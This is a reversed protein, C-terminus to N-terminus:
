CRAYLQISQVSVHYRQIQPMRNDICICLITYQKSLCSRNTNTFGYPCLCQYSGETNVCQMVGSCLDTNNLSALKCEDIDTLYMKMLIMACKAVVPMGTCSRKDNNNLVFGTRCSCLFSGITNTCNHDCPTLTCENIDIISPLFIDACQNTFFKIDWVM